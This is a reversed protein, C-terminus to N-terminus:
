EVRNGEDDLEVDMIAWSLAQHLLSFSKKINEPLIAGKSFTMFDINHGQISSIFKFYLEYIPLIKHQCKCLNEDAKPGPGYDNFPM